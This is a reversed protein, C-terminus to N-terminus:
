AFNCTDDHIGPLDEGPIIEYGLKHFYSTKGNRVEILGVRKCAPCTGTDGRKTETEPPLQTYDEVILLKNM